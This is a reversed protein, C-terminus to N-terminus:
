TGEPAPVVGFLLELYNRYHRLHAAVVEPEGRTKSLIFAGEFVTTLLDALGAADVPLRPPYAALVAEFKSGLRERWRDFTTNIVGITAPDFQRSEYCYSAFLCGPYPETLAGAAEEYLGVFILVQQLPDRSLREARAMYAELNALDQESYREVLARALEGKGRFHYFFAGKTIGTETLVMDLSTGAFGHDLVLSETANLIRERTASGDRPM